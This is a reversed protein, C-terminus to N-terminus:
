GLVDKAIREVEARFQSGEPQDAVARLAREAEARAAATEGLRHLVSALSARTAATSPHDAGLSREEAALSQAFLARARGLDGSDRAAAALNFRLTAVSPHEEGLNRLASELAQELLEKARPLEGLNQLVTALNSRGIAVSPHEEGLIRVGLELAQELLEKARPLEGLDKLVLALNSRTTAVSPHEEGLNRLDSELAQELLEKARPLEGLDKLVLALNSQRTAVAPHEEGLNRLASKLAQELLEKARPLEGLDQLVLALNSRATAVSPHEEGLNRLDSELAQELLEKARPLEGLSNLAIGVGDLLVSVRPDDAGLVSEADRVAAELHPGDERYVRYGEELTIGKAFEVCGEVFRRKAQELEEASAARQAWERVLRHMRWRQGDDRILHFRRLPHQAEAAIGCAELLAVSADEPAFCAAVLLASWATEDLQARHVDLARGVTREYRVLEQVREEVPAGEALKKLHAAPTVAPFERLYAGALEIALTHGDLHRLLDATGPAGSLDRGAAASLFERAAEDPLTELEVHAFAQGALGRYRTTVLLAVQPGSPLPRPESRRTWSEVNDLVILVPEGRSAIRVASAAREEVTGAGVALADAMTTGWAMTLDPNEADLWFIGGPFRGSESLRDVLHLALETKGVGALGEISAALRVKQGPALMAELRALDTERGFLKLARRIPLNYVPSRSTRPAAPLERVRDHVRTALERVGLEWGLTARAALLPLRSTMTAHDLDLRIPVICTRGFTADQNCLARLEDEPWHKFFNPSLVVVGFRSQALGDNMERVFDDGPRIENSDYWVRLGREELAAVFADVFRAKDESAHSVFLDYDHAVPVHHRM